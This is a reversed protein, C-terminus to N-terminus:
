VRESWVLTSMNVSDTARCFLCPTGLRITVGSSAFFIEGSILVSPM